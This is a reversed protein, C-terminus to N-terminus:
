KYTQPPSSPESSTTNNHPLQSLHFTRVPPSIERNLTWSKSNQLASLSNYIHHSYHHNVFLKQKWTRQHSSIQVFKPKPKWISTARPQEIFVLLSATAIALQNALNFSIIIAPESAQRSKCHDSSPHNNQHYSPNQSHSTSPSSKAM